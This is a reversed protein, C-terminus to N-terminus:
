AFYIYLTGSDLTPVIIGNRKLNLEDRETYNTANAFADWFTTADEDQIVCQDGATAAGVWRVFKIQLNNDTSVATGSATDIKWPNATIDNSM